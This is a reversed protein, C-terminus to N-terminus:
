KRKRAAAKRAKRKEHAQHEKIPRKLKSWPIEVVGVISQVTGRLTVAITLRKPDAYFWQDENLHIPGLNFPEIKRGSM